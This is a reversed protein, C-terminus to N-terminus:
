SVAPIRYTLNKRLESAAFNLRKEFKKLDKDSEIGDLLDYCLPCLERRNHIYFSFVKGDSLSKLIRELNDTQQKIAGPIHPIQSEWFSGWKHRKCLECIKIAENM